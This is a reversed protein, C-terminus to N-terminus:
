VRKRGEREIQIEEIRDRISAAREFNLAAAEREMEEILRALLAPDDGGEPVFVGEREKRDERSGSSDAISTITMIDDV